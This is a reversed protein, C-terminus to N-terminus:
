FPYNGAATLPVGRYRLTDGQCIEVDSSSQAMPHFLISFVTDYQCGNNDILTLPFTITTDTHITDPPLIVFTTSDIQLMGTSTSSSNNVIGDYIMGNTLALEWGCLYGNNENWGDMVEIKWEGNVPCGILDSFSGDPRFVNTMNAMNTPKCFLTQPWGHGNNMSNNMETIRNSTAYVYSGPSYVYGQNDAESWCYDRCVGITNVSADCVPLHNIFNPIGLRYNPNGYSLWESAPISDSCSSTHGSTNPHKKLISTHQGNPCTLQIWLDGIWEHEISLKVYLIDNVSAITDYGPFGSFTVSSIYSCGSGCDIGDPLFITDARSIHASTSGLVVNYGNGYGITIPQPLGACMEPMNIAQVPNYSQTIRTAAFCGERDSLRVSYYGPETIRISRTTDGTNWHYYDAGIPAFLSDESDQCLFTAGTVIPAHLHITDIHVLGDTTVVTDFYIGPEGYNHGNHQFVAGQCLLTDIVTTTAFCPGAAWLLMLGLVLALLPTRVTKQEKKLM